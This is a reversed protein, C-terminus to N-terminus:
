QMNVSGDAICFLIKERFKSNPNESFPRAQINIDPQISQVSHIEIFGQIGETFQIRSSYYIKTRDGRSM